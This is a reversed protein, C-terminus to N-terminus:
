RRAARIALYVVTVVALGAVVKGGTGLISSAAAEARHEQAQAWTADGPDKVPAKPVIARDLTWDAQDISYDAINFGTLSGVRAILSPWEVTTSAARWWFRITVWWPTQGNVTPLGDGPYTERSAITQGVPYSPRAREVSVLTVPRAAGVRWENPGTQIVQHLDTIDTGAQAANRLVWRMFDGVSSGIQDATAGDRDTRILVWIQEGQVLPIKAIDAMM